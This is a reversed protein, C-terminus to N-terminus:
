CCVYRRCSNISGYSKSNKELLLVKAGNELASLAASTGAGGAGIVVIDTSAEEVAKPEENKTAKLTEVSGGAQVICDEVAALIADSMMTAGSVVDVGISQQSIIKAPLQEIAAEAISETESHSVVKINKIENKTFEVEVTVPGNKGSATGTYVGSKFLDDSENSCGVTSLMLLMAVFISFFRTIIKKM